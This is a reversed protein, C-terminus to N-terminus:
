MGEGWLEAYRGAKAVLEEHSGSEVVKGAAMVHILDARRALATRHTVLVLTRGAALERLKSGWRAEAWPDMESTPEDLVVVQAPRVLARALAVRRWEGGSLEAGGVFGAGLRTEYGKPLRAAVADAGAASAAAEIRAQETGGAIDGLAINEGATASYRVPQQFLVTFIRRLEEVGYSRLDVGDLTVRGEGPDYLRSLLKVLTSKGSGNAGVVATIKGAPIELSCEWLVPRARGAYGFTVKELALGTRLAAPTAAPAAPDVIGPELDLFEFLDELFLSHSYIEGVQQLLSRMLRQGQSFAQYFLALDGLTVLGRAARWLMLGMAVGTVALGAAGAFGEALGEKKSLSLRGARLGARLARHAGRFHEGLRFFGVEAAADRATLVWDYYNSRREDATHELWWRHMRVRQRVVVLLAPATSALLALPLWVGYPLLVFAMAALTLANQLLTGFSEMLVLPRYGAEDRARHLRDFYEPSDYFALDVRTSQRLLLDAIRDRVLDSQAQRAFSAAARLLEDLLMVAALLGALVLAPRFAEWAGGARIAAVLGDVVSRTLYVTAVPLLGQAALLAGWLLTWRPAADWVLGIGRPLHPLQGAMRRAAKELIARQETM